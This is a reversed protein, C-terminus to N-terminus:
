DGLEPCAISDREVLSEGKASDYASIAVTTYNGHLDPWDRKLQPPSEAPLGRELRGPPMEGPIGVKLSTENKLLNHSVQRLLAMNQPAHDKRIRCQDEVFNVDLSWHLSNEISWHTRVVELLREASAELSSIYYRPQVTTGGATERRGAVKVTSLSSAGM